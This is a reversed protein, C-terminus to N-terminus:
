EHGVGLARETVERALGVAADLKWRNGPLPHAEWELEKDLLSTVIDATPTTGALEACLRRPRWPTAALGGFTYRVSAWRGDPDPSVCLAVSVLAFDGDWQQLKAFAGVREAVGAPLLVAEVLEDRRLDLEAPGVYLEALSIERSGSPGTLRVRADLADFVTALDSPTVAQCRHGGIAAHHLRHDGQVAYCPCSVGGRKYCDFGNRFFWCRKEQGLNGGVTAVERIQASAITRVAEALMPVRGEAWAALEALTVAAGIWWSGDPQEDVNRMTAIGGTGVLVTPFTLAQDRQVLLDTGGGIVATDPAALEAVAEAVTGPRTVQEVPRPTRRRAFRTGLRDLLLHLGYPYLRRFLEIQWRSPRRALHHRRPRVGDRERLAALVVDPTLPLERFRIGTADYVANLLAPAAPILAIEGVSKADFPGAPEPGEILTVDMSPVTTARPLPYHLYGDNVLRGDEYILKEGLAAGLGQIAGGVIQGEVLAPNIARGIDHVAAYGVVRIVGTGPDVEVEIAHAAYAYTASINPRPIGTWYPQMKPEVYETDIRLSGDVSEDALDVLDEIAVSDAASAVRGDRVEVEATGLKDAGLECLRAAVAEATQRVAHGGMHTGRSSWAGMDPPTEDWDAMIVSVRDMPVGLVEAAIQGLITRQGTGADAGGFRVVVEGTTRVEIGAASTNGGPYAYSGSAHMGSSVGVGRLPGTGPRVRGGNRKADWDIRERVQALCERLRNSGIQSGSLQTTDPLGSNHIRFEIPDQGCKEALEDMATELAIATQPQGYGRFQGGPVLNTDVLRADWRVADPRYMSGLQKIGARMVSPGYHNYAGNDVDIVTDLFCLRGDADAHAELTTEFAHRPKTFAFEEARTLEILVPRGCKMSLAAALAEHESIKSKSGFGGGVAVDRCVVQDLELGFLAALEHVVFHPAQSSTWMELREDHWWAITTNPEMCAHTVRPYRFTGRTSVHANAQALDVDGWHEATAVAVNGGDARRHLQPAGPALADAVTLVPKRRRYRVKIRRVAEDAAEATEAAVAAIEHGVYLVRDVALPPRDSYPAGSHEYLRGAPFDAATIVAHVGPVRLAASADLGRLDAHPLPSRLVRAVLTGEPPQDAAYRATGTTKEQWDLPRVSRGIASM